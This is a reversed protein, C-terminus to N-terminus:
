PHCRYFVARWKKTPEGCGEGGHVGRAVRPQLQTQHPVRAMERTVMGFQKALDPYLPQRRCRVMDITSRVEGSSLLTQKRRDPTRGVKPRRAPFRHKTM